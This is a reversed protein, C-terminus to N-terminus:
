RAVDCLAILATSVRSSPRFIGQLVKCHASSFYGCILFSTKARTTAALLNRDYKWDCGITTRVFWGKFRTRESGFMDPLITFLTTSSLSYPISYWGLGAM